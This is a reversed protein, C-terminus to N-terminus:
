SPLAVIDPNPADIEIHENFRIFVQCWELDVARFTAKVPFGSAVNIWIVAQLDRTDFEDGLWAKIQPVRTAPSIKYTLVAFQMGQYEVSSAAAIPFGDLIVCVKDLRLFSNLCDRQQIAGGAGSQVTEARMPGAWFGINMYHNKGITIWEDFDGAGAQTVHYRNPSSFSCRLYAKPNDNWTAFTRYTKADTALQVARAAHSAGAQMEIPNPTPMDLRFLDAFQAEDMERRLYAADESRFIQDIADLRKALYLVGRSIKKTNLAWMAIHTLPSQGPSFCGPSLNELEGLYKRKWDERLAENELAQIRIAASRSGFADSMSRLSLHVLATFLRAFFLRRKLVRIKWIGVNSYLEDADQIVAVREVIHCGIKRNSETETSSPM